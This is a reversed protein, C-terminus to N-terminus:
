VTIDLYEVTTTKCALKTEAINAFQVDHTLRSRDSAVFSLRTVCRMPRM